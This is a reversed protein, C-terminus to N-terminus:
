AYVRLRSSGFTVHYCTLSPHTDQPWGRSVAWSLPTGASWLKQSGGTNIDMGKICFSWIRCPFVYPLPRPKLFDDVGNYKCLHTARNTRSLQTEQKRQSSFKPINRLPSYTRPRTESYLYWGCQCAVDASTEDRTSSVTLYIICDLDCVSVHWNILEETESVSQHVVLVTRM